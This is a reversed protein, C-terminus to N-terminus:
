DSELGDSLTQDWYEREGVEAAWKKPDNRLNEFAQNASKLFCERRYAEIAQELISQMSQGSQGALEHLTSRSKGTIRVTGDNM